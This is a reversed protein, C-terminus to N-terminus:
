NTVIYLVFQFSYDWNVKLLLFWEFEFASNPKCRRKLSELSACLFRHQRYLESNTIYLDLILLANNDTPKQKWSRFCVYKPSFVHRRLENSRRMYIYKKQIETYLRFLESTCHLILIRQQCFSIWSSFRNM